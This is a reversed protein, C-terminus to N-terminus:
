EIMEKYVKILNDVFNEWTNQSVKKRANQGMRKIESPNEYFYLIYNRISKVDRINVVFGEKGDEILESAGVNKTTIVPLGAAMAESVTMAWGDEISPFVYLSSNALMSYYLKKPLRNYFKIPIEVKKILNNIIVKMEKEINGIIILEADRLKLNELALLLYQLGKRLIISGTYIIKFKNQNYNNTEIDSLDIGYNIVKIKEENIKEKLFSNRVYKSPALIYDTFRYEALRRLINLKYYNYNLNWRRYEEKLIKYQQLIHANGCELITKAGLKKVKKISYLGHGTWCHLIDCKEIFFQSSLIDFFLPIILINVSPINYINYIYRLISSTMSKPTENSKNTYKSFFLSNLSIIKKLIKKKALERTTYYVSDWTTGKSVYNCVQYIVEM